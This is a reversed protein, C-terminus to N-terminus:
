YPNSSLSHRCSRRGLIFGLSQTELPSGHASVACMHSCKEWNPFTCERRLRECLTCLFSCVSEELSCAHRKGKTVNSCMRAIESCNITSTLAVLHQHQTRTFDGSPYIAKPVGSVVGFVFYSRKGTM